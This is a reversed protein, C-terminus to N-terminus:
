APMLTLFTMMRVSMREPASHPSTPNTRVPDMLRMTLVEISPLMPKVPMMTAQIPLRSGRMMAPTEKKMLKRVRPMACTQVSNPKVLSASESVTMPRTYKKKMPQSNKM